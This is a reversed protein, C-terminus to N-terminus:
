MSSPKATGAVMRRRNSRYRSPTVGYHKRFLTYFYPHNTVGVTEAIEHISKETEALLIASQELRRQNIADAISRDTNKRYIRGLYSASIGLTEAIVDLSLNPNQYSSDILETVQMLLREHRLNRHQEKRSAVDDILVGVIDRVENITEANNLQSTVHLADTRETMGLNREITALASTITLAAQLITLRLIPYGLECAASVIEDFLNKADIYQGSKLLEGLRQEKEVPYEIDRDVDTVLVTDAFFLSDAGLIFRHYAASTVTAYERVAAPGLRVPGGITASCILSMRQKLVELVRRTRNEAWQRYQDQQERATLPVNVLLVLDKDIHTGMLNLAEAVSVQQVITLARLICVDVSGSEVGQAVSARMAVRLVIIAVDADVDIPLDAQKLQSLFDEQADEALLLGSLVHQLHEQEFRARQEESLRLRKVLLVLIASTLLVVTTILVTLLLIRRVESDVEEQIGAAMESIVRNFERSSIDLISLQNVFNMLLVIEDLEYRDRHGQSYVLQLLGIPLPAILDQEIIDDLMREAELLNRRSYNWVFSADDIRASVRADLETLPPATALKDLASEFSLRQNSLNLRLQPLISQEDLTVTSRSTLIDKTARDLSNWEALVIMSQLSLDKLRLIRAGLYTFSGFLLILALGMVVVLTRMSEHRRSTNMWRLRLMEFADFCLKRRM